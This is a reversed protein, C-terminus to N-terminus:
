EPLNGFNNVSFRSLASYDCAGYHIFKKKNKNNPRNLKFSNILSMLETKKVQLLKEEFPSVWVGEIVFDNVFKKKLFYARTLDKFIDSIEESLIEKNSNIKKVESFNISFDNINEFEIIKKNRLNELIKLIFKKNFSLLESVEELDITKKDKICDILDREPLLLLNSM